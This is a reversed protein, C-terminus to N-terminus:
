AKIKLGLKYGLGGALGVAAMAAIMMTLFGLNLALVRNSTVMTIAVFSIVTIIFTPKWLCTATDGNTFFLSWACVVGFFIGIAITQGISFSMGIVLTNAAAFALATFLVSLLSAIVKSRM